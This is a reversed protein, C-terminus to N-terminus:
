EFDHLSGIHAGDSALYVRGYVVSHPTGCSPCDWAAGIGPAGYYAGFQLEGGCNLCTHTM